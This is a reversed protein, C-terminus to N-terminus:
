LLPLRKEMFISHPNPKHSGFIGREAYGLKKYLMISEPQYIGTELRSIAINGNQLYRELALMIETGIGKKRCDPSVFMRKIEGYAPDERLLKVAGIAVLKIDLFAGVIYVDKQALEDIDLLQNSEPPYLSEMYATSQELLEYFGNETVAINKVRM